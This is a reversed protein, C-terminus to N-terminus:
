VWTAAPEGGGRESISVQNAGGGIRVEYRDAAAGDRSSLSAGGGAARIRQGDLDVRNAGGGIELRVATGAPRRIVLHNTGGGLTVPVAGTPAPLDLTVHNAGGGARVSEVRAGELHAELRNVGGRSELRWPVAPNLVVEGRSQEKSGGFLGGLVDRLTFREYSVEIVGDEVSVDPIEGEFHAEFLGVLTPDVRVSVNSVGRAFVLSGRTVDGLPASFTRAGPTTVPM